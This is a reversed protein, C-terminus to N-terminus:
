SEPLLDSTRRDLMLVSRDRLIESVSREIAECYRDLNLHDASIGFPQEMAMAGLEVAILLFVGLGLPMLGWWGVENLIFAPSTLLYFWFAVQLVGSPSSPIPTQRIRECGGCVDMLGYAHLDLARLMQAEIDHASGWRALLRFVCDAFMIPVHGPRGEATEFGPVDQLKVSGRLHLRLAHAFGALLRALEDRDEQGIRTYAVAKLALNRSDNVLKGWLQRAEWWRSYAANNRFSVLFGVILGFAATAETGWGIRAIDLQASAVGVLVAYALFALTWLAARRGVPLAPFIAWGSGPKEEAPLTMKPTM